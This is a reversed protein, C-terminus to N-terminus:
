CGSNTAPLRLACRGATPAPPPAVPDYGTQQKAWTYCDSEDKQQVDATQGKAPFVVLGLSQSMTKPAPAQAALVFPVALLLALTLISVTRKM